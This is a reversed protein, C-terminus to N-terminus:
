KLEELKADLDKLRQKLIEVKETQKIVQNNHLIYDDKSLEKNNLNINAYSILNEADKLTAFITERKQELTEKRQKKQKATLVIGGKEDRVIGREAEIEAREEIQEKTASGEGIFMPKNIGLGNKINSM